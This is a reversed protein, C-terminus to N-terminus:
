RITEVIEWLTPVLRISHCTVIIIVIYVTVQSILVERKRILKQFPLKKTHMMCEIIVSITLLYAAHM